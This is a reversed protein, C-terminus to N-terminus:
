SGARGGSSAPHRSGCSRRIGASRVPDFPRAACTLRGRRPAPDSGPSQRLPRRFGGRHRLGGIETRPHDPHRGPATPGPGRTFRRNGSFSLCPRRDSRRRGREPRRQDARALLLSVGGGSPQVLVWRKDQEPQHVGELLRFGLVDVHFGIAEDHDRM